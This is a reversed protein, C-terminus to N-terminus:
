VAESFLGGLAGSIAALDAASAHTFAARAATGAALGDLRQKLAALQQREQRTLQFEVRARYWSLLSM